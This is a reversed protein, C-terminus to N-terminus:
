SVKVIISYEPRAAFMLAAKIQEDTIEPYYEHMEERTMGALMQLIESVTIRTGKLVPKGSRIGPDILTYQSLDLEM